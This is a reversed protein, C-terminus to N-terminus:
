TEGHLDGYNRQEYVGMSVRFAKFRIPDIEGSAYQEAKEKMDDILKYNEETINIM